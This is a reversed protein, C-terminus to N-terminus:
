QVIELWNFGIVECEMENLNVETNGEWALRHKGDSTM